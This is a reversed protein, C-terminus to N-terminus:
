FSRAIKKGFRSFLGATRVGATRSARGIAVGGGTALSWPTAPKEAAGPGDDVENVAPEPVLAAVPTAITADLPRDSWPLPLVAISEMVPEGIARTNNVGGSVENAANVASLTKRSEGTGRARADKRPAVAPAPRTLDPNAVHAADSVLHVATSVSASTVAVASTVVTMNSVMLAVALLGVGCGTAVARWPRVGAGPGALIRVLRRRLRSSSVALAPLPRIPAPPLAALTALCSAYAKASGTVRVALEDCAVERELELQRELWWAAPHWGVIIRVLQQVTQAVDDRRQVHAWEHTVVRDLDAVSLRAIVRPALAIAPAGGGLVAALRVRDSLVVRTPRGAASVHSWHPLQTLVESPCERSQRRANRVRVVGVVFQVAHLALWISWLSIATASSSWWAVPMTVLAASTVSGPEVAPADIAAAFVLPLAPLAAVLLFAVWVFAYRAQTRSSPIARLGAAAAIAVVVGQMLWNLAVDM